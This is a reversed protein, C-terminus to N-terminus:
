LPVRRASQVRSWDLDAVNVGKGGSSQVIKGNGLYIVVHGVGNKPKFTILDGPQLQNTPVNQLFGNANHHIAGSTALGKAALDVGLTRFSAVVFGSCDFVQTGKPYQYTSGSGNVSQHAKGDWLVDGFRFPNVAAYPAGVKSKSWALMSDIKAARPGSAVVDPGQAPAAGSSAPTGSGASFTSVGGMAGLTQPGAWGDVKLGKMKQFARVAAETQPGFNGGVAGRYLGLSKLKSQLESVAPGKAGKVLKAAGAATSNASGGGSRLAGLTKPGAWGDVKLGKLKQFARVAADTQPGFSGDIGGRYLGLAALQRQLEAVGAGRAGLTLQGPSRVAANSSGSVKTPQM